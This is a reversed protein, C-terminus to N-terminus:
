FLYIIKISFINQFGLLIEYIYQIIFLKILNYLLKIQSIFNFLSLNQFM